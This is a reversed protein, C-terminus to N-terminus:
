CLLILSPFTLPLLKLYYSQSSKLPKKLLRKLASISYYTQTGSNKELSRGQRAYINRMIISAKNSVDIAWIYFGGAILAAGFKLFEPM